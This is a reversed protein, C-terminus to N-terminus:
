TFRAIVTSAGRTSIEESIGAAFKNTNDVLPQATLKHVMGKAHDDGPTGDRNFGRPVMHMGRPILLKSALPALSKLSTGTLSDATLAGYPTTPFFRSMNVGNCTFFIVMRTPYTTPAARGRRAWLNDVEGFKLREVLFGAAELLECILIQCGADSPSVSPRRILERALSLTDM